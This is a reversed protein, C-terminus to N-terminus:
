SPVAVSWGDTSSNGREGAIIEGMPVVMVASFVGFNLLPFTCHFQAANSLYGVITVCTSPTLVMRMRLTKTLSINRSSYRALPQVCTVTM